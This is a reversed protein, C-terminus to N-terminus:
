ETLGQLEACSTFAQQANDGSAPKGLVRLGLAREAQPLMVAFREGGRLGAADTASTAPYSELRAVTEWSGNPERQVQIEPKGGSTDFWGGDHFTQGHAFIVRRVEVPKPLSVAFWADAQPRGDFTVVFTGADGDSISGPVNGPRSRTETGFAFLSDNRPLEADPAPLWVRYRSGQSGADAFLVFQARHVGPQRSSRVTVEFLASGDPETRWTVPPRGPEAAFGMATIPGLSPNFAEDYALVAPGWVAAARGANGHDGAILRGSLNYLVVFQDGDKWRRAPLMTWGRELTTAVARGKQEIRLPRAWEPTRVGVSFALRKPTHVTVTLRGPLAPDSFQDLAVSQGDLLLTARGMEFLNVGVARARAGPLDLTFWAHQPVLAMGRPGSSVCCNIGPGYDKTGELPTFYCWQAGDPRQAAALHNVFTKELEDGFRAEGTLRLLQSNLQIWTTTVCTESVHASPENPLFYDAKFHEGQSASGTLYLRHAVIDEWAVLVPELWEREGTARALECLGVLNSL